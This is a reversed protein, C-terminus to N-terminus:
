SRGFWRRCLNWVFDPVWRPKRRSAYYARLDRQDRELVAQMEEESVAGSWVVQNDRIWYHSKCPLQWRGISPSLSVRGGAETLQWKAPKLPTVVRSGCGCACLHAATRFRQSIYLRGPELTEPMTEVYEPVFSDHRM